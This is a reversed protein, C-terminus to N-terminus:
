CIQLSMTDPNNMSPQIHGSLRSCALCSRSFSNRSTLESYVRNYLYPNPLFLIDYIVRSKTTFEINHKQLNRTFTLKVRTVFHIKLVVNFLSDTLICQGYPFITLKECVLRIRKETGLESLFAMQVISSLGLGGKGKLSTSGM